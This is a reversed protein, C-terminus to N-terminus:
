AMAHGCRPQIADGGPGGAAAVAEHLDLEGLLYGAGNQGGFLVSFGRSEDYVMAGRYRAPPETTDEVLSWQGDSLEWTDSQLNWRPDWYVGGFLVIARANRDYVLGHRSRPGPGTIGTKITQWAFTTM